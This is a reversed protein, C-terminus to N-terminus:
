EAAERAQQEALAAKWGADFASKNATWQPSALRMAPYTLAMFEIFARDMAQAQAAEASGDDEWPPTPLTADSRKACREAAGLGGNYDPKQRRSKSPKSM